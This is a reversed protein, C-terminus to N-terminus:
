GTMRASQSAALREIGVNPAMFRVSAKAVNELFNTLSVNRSRKLCSAVLFGSFRAKRTQWSMPVTRGSLYLPMVASNSGSVTRRMSPRFSTTRLPGMTRQEALVQRQRHARMAAVPSFNQAIVSPEGFLSTHPPSAQVGDLPRRLPRKAGKAGGSM